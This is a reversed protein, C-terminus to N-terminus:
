YEKAKDIMKALYIMLDEDTQYALPDGSGDDEGVTPGMIEYPADKRSYFMMGSIVSVKIVAGGKCPFEYKASFHAGYKGMMKGLAGPSQDVKEHLELTMPHYGCKVLYEPFPLQRKLFVDEMFSMDDENMMYEKNIDISTDLRKAIESQIISLGTRGFPQPTMWAEYKLGM